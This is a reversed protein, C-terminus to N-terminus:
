SLIVKEVAVAIRDLVGRIERELPLARKENAIKTLQNLNTGIKSLQFTLLRRVEPDNAPPAPAKLDSLLVIRGFDSLTRGTAAARKELEARETPTLQLRLGATRREGHDDARYRPM